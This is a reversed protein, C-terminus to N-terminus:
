YISPTSCPASASLNCSNHRGWYRVQTDAISNVTRIRMFQWLISAANPFKRQLRDHDGPEGHQRIRINEECGYEPVHLLIVIIKRVAQQNSNWYSQQDCADEM